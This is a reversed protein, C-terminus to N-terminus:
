PTEKSHQERLGFIGNLFIHAIQDAYDDYPDVDLEAPKIKQFIPEVLFRMAIMGIM